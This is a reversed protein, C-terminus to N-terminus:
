GSSLNNNLNNTAKARIQLTTFKSNDLSQDITGKLGSWNIKNRYRADTTRNNKRRSFARYRKNASVPSNAASLDYYTSTRVVDITNDTVKKFTETVVVDVTYDYSIEVQIPSTDCLGGGWNIHPCASAKLPYTITGDAAVNVGSLSDWSQGNLIQFISNSQVVPFGQPYTVTVNSVNNETTAVTATATYIDGNIIDSTLAWSSTTVTVTKRHTETYTYPTASIIVIDGLANGEDDIEQLAEEWEVTEAHYAGNSDVYTLGQPLTYDFEVASVTKGAPCVAFGGLWEGGNEENPALMELNTVADSPYINPSFLFANTTPPVLRYEIDSYASIEDEGLRITSVDADGASVVFSLHLYQENNINRTFPRSAYFLTQRVTGYVVPIPRGLIPQNQGGTLAYSPSAERTDALSKPTAQQFGEPPFLSNVVLSGAITIGAVVATYALSGAAFGLVTGAVWPAFVMIAVMAVVALPNSGGGGGGSGQPITYFGAVQNNKLKLSAWESRSIFEGDVVLVTPVRTVDINNDDLWQAPTIGTSCIEALPKKSLYEPPNVWALNATM